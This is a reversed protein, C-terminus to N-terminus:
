ISEVMLCDRAGPLELKITCKASGSGMYPDVAFVRHMHTKTALTLIPPFIMDGKGVEVTLYCLLTQPM